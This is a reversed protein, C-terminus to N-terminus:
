RPVEGSRTRLRRREGLHFLFSMPIEKCLELSAADFCRAKSSSVGYLTFTQSDLPKDQNSGSTVSQRPRYRNGMNEAASVLGRGLPEVFAIQLTVPYTVTCVFPKKPCRGSRLGKGGPKESNSCMDSSHVRHLSSPLIGRPTGYM